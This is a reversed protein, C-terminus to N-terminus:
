RSNRRNNSLLSLLSVTDSSAPVVTDKVVPQVSVTDVDAPLLM